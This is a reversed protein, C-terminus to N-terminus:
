LPEKEAIELVKRMGLLVCILALANTKTVYKPHRNSNLLAVSVVRGAQIKNLHDAVIISEISM